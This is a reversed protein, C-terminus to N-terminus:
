AEKNETKELLTVEGSHIPRVVGDVGRILLAGSSDVGEAVAQYCRDGQRVQVTMGLLFLRQTYADLIDTKRGRLTFEKYVGELQNLVEATLRNRLGRGGTIAAVSTAIDAVQLPIEGTNIGIGIVAADVTQMEASVYAETLIGCLKKGGHYIDNVWKVDAAIGCVAELANCVAVAACITLFSTEALPIVPKVLLSMYVGEHAPSYFPRGLRGRGGPQEDALVAYGEPLSDTDLAKLYQNTSPVTKLIELHRGFTQTRLEDQIARASLGDSEDALRYGSNPISEIDNGDERLTNVAKWVATRSVGLLRAIEGGTIIDGRRQELLYLVKQRLM